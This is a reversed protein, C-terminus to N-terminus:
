KEPYETSGSPLDLSFLGGVDAAMKNIFMNAMLAAM